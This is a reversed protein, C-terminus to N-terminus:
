HLSADLPGLLTAGVDRGASILTAQPHVLLVVGGWPPKASLAASPGAEWSLALGKPAQSHREMSGVASQQHSLM